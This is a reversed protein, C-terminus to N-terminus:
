PMDLTVTPVRDVPCISSGGCDDVVHVGVRDKNRRGLHVPRVVNFEGRDSSMPKPEPFQTVSSGGFGIRVCVFM